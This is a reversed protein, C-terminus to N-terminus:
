CTQSSNMGFCSGKLILKPWDRDKDPNDKLKERVTQRQLELWDLVVPMESKDGHEFKSATKKDGLWEKWSRLSYKVAEM